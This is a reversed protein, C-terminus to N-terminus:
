SSLISLPFYLLDEGFITTMLEVMVVVAWTSAVEGMLLHCGRTGPSAKLSEKVLLIYSFHGLALEPFKLSRSAEVKVNETYGEM